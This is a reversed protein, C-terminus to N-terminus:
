RTYYVKSVYSKDFGDIEKIWYLFKDAENKKEYPGIRVRYFNKGEVSTTHISATFGKVAIREKAKEAGNLTSFSGVQIWYESGKKKSASAPAAPVAKKTMETGPVRKVSVKEKEPKDKQDKKKMVVIKEPVKEPAKKEPAKVSIKEPPPVAPAAEQAATEPLVTQPNDGYVIILDDQPADKKEKVGPYENDKKVWEFPDFKEPIGVAAENAGGATGDNGSPLFFFMGAGIVALFLIAVSLITWLLKQQEM